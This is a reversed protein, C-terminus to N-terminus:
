KDFAEVLNWGQGGVDVGGRDWDRFPAHYGKSIFVMGKIPIIIPIRITLGKCPLHKHIM